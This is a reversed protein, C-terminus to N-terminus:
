LCLLSFSFTLCLCTVLAFAFAMLASAFSSLAFVTTTAWAVQSRHSCGGIGWCGGMGGRPFLSVGRGLPPGQSSFPLKQSMLSGRAIEKFNAEPQRGQKQEFLMNELASLM